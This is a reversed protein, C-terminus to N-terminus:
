TYQKVMLSDDTASVARTYENILSIDEDSENDVDTESYDPELGEPVYILTYKLNGKEKFETRLIEKFADLKSVAKHIIRKRALLLM